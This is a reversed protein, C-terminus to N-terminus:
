SSEWFPASAHPQSGSVLRGLSSSNKTFWERFTLQVSAKGWTINLLLQTSCTCLQQIVVHEKTWVQKKNKWIDRLTIVERKKILWWKMKQTLLLCTSEVWGKWLGSLIDILDQKQALSIRPWLFFLLFIDINKEGYATRLSWQIECFYSSYYVHNQTEPKVILCINTNYLDHITLLINCESCFFCTHSHKKQLQCISAACAFVQQVHTNYIKNCSQNSTCFLKKFYFLMNDKESNAQNNGPLGRM